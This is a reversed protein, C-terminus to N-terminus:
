FLPSPLNTATSSRPFVMSSSLVESSNSTQEECQQLSGSQRQAICGESVRYKQADDNNQTTTVELGVGLENLKDM